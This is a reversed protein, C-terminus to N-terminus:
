YGPMRDVKRCWLVVGHVHLDGRSLAALLFHLFAWPLSLSTYAVCTYFSLGLTLLYLYTGESDWSIAM